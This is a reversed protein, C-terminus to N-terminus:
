ESPKLARIAEAHWIANGGGHDIVAQACREITEAEKNAATFRGDLQMSGHLENVRDQLTDREAEAREARDLFERRLGAEVQAAQKYDNREEILHREAIEAASVQGELEKIRADKRKNEAVLYAESTSGFDDIM